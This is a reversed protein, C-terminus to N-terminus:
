QMLFATAKDAAERVTAGRGEFSVKEKLLDRLCEVKHMAEVLDVASTAYDHDGGRSGIIRGYTTKYTVGDKDWIIPKRSLRAGERVAAPPRIAIKGKVTFLVEDGDLRCEFTNGGALWRYLPSLLVQATNLRGGGAQIMSGDKEIVITVLGNDACFGRIVCGLRLADEVQEFRM